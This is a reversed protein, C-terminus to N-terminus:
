LWSLGNRLLVGIIAGILPALFSLFMLRYYVRPVRSKDVWEVMNSLIFLSLAVGGIVLSLIAALYDDWLWILMYIAIQILFAELTILKKLFTHDPEKGLSM